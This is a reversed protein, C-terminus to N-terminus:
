HSSTQQLIDSWSYIVHVFRNVDRFYETYSNRPIQLFWQQHNSLHVYFSTCNEEWHEVPTLSNRYSIFTVTIKTLLCLLLYLRMYPLHQWDKYLTEEFLYIIYIYILHVFTKVDRYYESCSNRAKNRFWHQHNFLHVYPKHYKGWSNLIKLWRTSSM